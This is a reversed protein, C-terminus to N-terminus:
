INQIYKNRSHFQRREESDLYVYETFIYVDIYSLLIDKNRYIKSAICDNELGVKGLKFTYTYYKNYDM